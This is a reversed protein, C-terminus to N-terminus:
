WAADMRATLPARRSGAPLARHLDRAEHLTRQSGLMTATDWARCALAIARDVDGTGALARAHAIANAAGQKGTGTAALTCFRAAGAHDGRSQAARARYRALKVDDFRMLWPWVPEAADDRLRTSASRLCLEAQPDGTAALATATTAELWARAIDPVDRPLEARCRGLLALAPGTAGATVAFDALSARMYVVLLPDRTREAAEVAAKYCTRAQAGDDLDVHLWALLGLAEAERAALRATERAGRARARAASVLHAHAAAASLLTRTPTTQELRRLAATGQGLLGAQSEQAAVAGSLATAAGLTFLQRRNTPDVEQADALGAWSRPVGLADCLARVTAIGPARSRGTALRSVVSQSVGSAQAIASQRVGGEAAARLVEPWRGAERAARLRPDSLTEQSLLSGPGAGSGAQRRQCSACLEEGNYRSVEVDCVRCCLGGM